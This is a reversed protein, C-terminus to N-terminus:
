RMGLYSRYGFNVNNVTGGNAVTVTQPPTKSSWGIAPDPNVDV